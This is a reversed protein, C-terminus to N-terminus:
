RYRKYRSQAAKVAQKLASQSGLFEGKVALNGKVFEIEVAGGLANVKYPISTVNVCRIASWPAFWFGDTNGFPTLKSSARWYLGDDRVDLVGGALTM